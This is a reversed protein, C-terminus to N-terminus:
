FSLSVKGAIHETLFSCCSSYFILLDKETQLLIEEIATWRGLLAFVCTSLKDPTRVVWMFNKLPIFHHMWSQNISSGMFSNIPSLKFLPPSFLTNSVSCSTGILWWKRGLGQSCYIKIYHIWSILKELSNNQRKSMQKQKLKNSLNERLSSVTTNSYSFLKLIYFDKVWTLDISLHLPM